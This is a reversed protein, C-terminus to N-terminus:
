GYPSLDIFQPTFNLYDSSTFYYYIGNKEGTFANRHDIGHLHGFICIKVQFRRMIEVFETEEQRSTLPPYHLVALLDRYGDKWAASLSLELRILERKYIKEDQATYNEGGPPAWGRTGCIALRQDYPYYNNQVAFISEPLARKVQAYSKWWYDHNGRFIVKIGPLAHIFQLDERAEKLKMAWSLDGGLIVTDASSVAREWNEKIKLPYGEWQDGFINMPKDVALSLHLDSLAFLAM